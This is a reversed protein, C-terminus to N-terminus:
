NRLISLFFDIRVDIITQLVPIFLICTGNEYKIVHLENVGLKSKQRSVRRADKIIGKLYVFHIWQEVITALRCSKLEM